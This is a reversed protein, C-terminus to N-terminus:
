LEACEMHLEDICVNRKECIEFEQDHRGRTLLM